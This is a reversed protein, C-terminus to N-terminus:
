QSRPVLPPSARVRSRSLPFPALGPFLLSSFAFYAFPLTPHPAPFASLAPLLSQPPQKLFRAKQMLCLRHRLWFPLTLGKLFVGILKHLNKEGSSLHHTRLTNATRLPSQCGGKSPFRLRKEQDGDSFAPFPPFNTASM